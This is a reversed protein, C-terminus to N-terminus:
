WQPDEAKESTDTSSSTSDYFTANVMAIDSDGNYDRIVAVCSVLTTANPTLTIADDNNITVNLIDPFVNGVQLWTTVNAPNGIEALVESPIFSFLAFLLTVELFLLGIGITKQKKNEM